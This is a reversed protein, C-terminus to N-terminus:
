EIVPDIEGEHPVPNKPLVKGGAKQVMSQSVTSKKIIQNIQFSILNFFVYSDLFLLNISIHKLAIYRSHISESRIHYYSSLKDSM